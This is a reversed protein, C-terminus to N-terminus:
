FNFVRTHVYMYFIFSCWCHGWYYHWFMFELSVYPIVILNDCTTVSWIGSRVLFYLCIWMGGWVVVSGNMNNPIRHSSPHVIVSSWCYVVTCYLSSFINFPVLFLCVPIQSTLRAGCFYFGTTFLIIYWFVLGYNAYYKWAFSSIGVAVIRRLDIFFPKRLVHVPRLFTDILLFKSFYIFVVITCRWM